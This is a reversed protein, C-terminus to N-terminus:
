FFHNKLPKICIDKAMLAKLCHKTEKVNSVSINETTIVENIKILLLLLGIYILYKLKM